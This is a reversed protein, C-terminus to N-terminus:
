LRLTFRSGLINTDPGAIVCLAACSRVYVPGQTSHALPRRILADTGWLGAAVAVAAVGISASSM